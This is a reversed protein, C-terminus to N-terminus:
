TGTRFNVASKLLTSLDPFNFPKEVAAHAGHDQYSKLGDPNASILIVPIHQYEASAKITRCMVRGDASGVNVDLLVIDPQFSYFIDLGEDCTTSVKTDFGKLILFTKLMFLIDTDDDVVLIKKM